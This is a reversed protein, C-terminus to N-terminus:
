KSSQAVALCVVHKYGAEKLATTAAELTAGTTVIDDVLLVIKNKHVSEKVKYAQQVQRSRTMKDAGVQRHKSDTFLLSVCKLNRQSAIQKAIRRAHDYGRSRVHPSITPIYTVVYEERADRVPLSSTIFGLPKIGASAREFKFERLLSKTLDEYYVARYMQKVSTNKACCTCTKFNKTAQNCKYCSSPVHAVNSQICGECLLSGEIGCGICYHPAIFSLITDILNVTTNKINYIKNIRGQSLRCKLTISYM